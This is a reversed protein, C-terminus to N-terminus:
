RSTVLAQLTFEYTPLTVAAVPVARMLTWALGAYLRQTGGESYLLRLTSFTNGFRERRWDAILNSRAVDFPYTCVWGTVGAGSAAIVKGSLTESMGVCLCRDEVGRMSCSARGGQSRLRSDGPVRRSCCRCILLHALRCPLSEAPSRAPWFFVLYGASTQQLQKNTTVHQTSVRARWSCSGRLM